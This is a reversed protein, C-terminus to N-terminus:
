RHPEVGLMGAIENAFMIFVGIASDDTYVSCHSCIASLMYLCLVILDSDESHAVLM